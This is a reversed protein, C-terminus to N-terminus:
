EIKIKPKYVKKIEFVMSERNLTGNEYWENLQKEAEELSTFIRTSVTYLKQKEKDKKIPLLKGKVIKMPIIPTKNDTKESTCCYYCKDKYELPVGHKCEKTKRM